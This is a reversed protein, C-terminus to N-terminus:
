QGKVPELDYLSPTLKEQLDIITVESDGDSIIVYKRIKGLTEELM